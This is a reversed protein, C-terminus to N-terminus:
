AGPIAGMNLMYGRDGEQAHLADLVAASVYIIRESLLLACAGVLARFDMSETFPARHVGMMAEPVLHTGAPLRDVNHWHRIEVSLTQQIPVIAELDAEFHPGGDFPDVKKGFSFGAMELLYKAGKNGKGVVGIVERAETPLMDVYFPDPPFLTAIFEKNTRSAHDAETYDMRTFRRGIAEWLPSKGDAELPPLLEALVRKCFREAPCMAMWFFRVYSLFRGLKQSVHRYDPLLVLRGIETMGQTDCGLQLVEQEVSIDRTKSYRHVRKVDFFYHPLDATGHQAIIASSGVVKDSLRDHLVFMYECASPSLQGTFSQISKDIVERLISEENPLNVSNLHRALNHVDALDGMRAPRVVFRHM